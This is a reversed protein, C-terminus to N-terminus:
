FNPLLTIVQNNSNPIEELGFALLWFSYEM